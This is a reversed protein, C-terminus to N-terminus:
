RSGRGARMVEDVVLLQSALMTALHVFQRKVRYADWVGATVPLMPDGTEVDLGVPDASAEVEEQLKILTDLVDFGSNQALTKPIVLLADAVAQVGLKARGKVSKKYEMLDAAAALEFAGAGPVLAEDEVANVVAKLGDRLADKLQAITHANPGKLLVTVSQPHKVDEVFTYKDEGLVEEYVKGAWGLCEPRLAAESNVAEGGCALQLREMNRRKARRIGVIGEKALMDLSLPDIGKQNIVVFGYGNEPTCVQRKLEIVAKVKDDTFKREAEVLKEREEPTSYVFSSSVESKEYELSINCTLIYANEVYKPMDPHRAGHDLVLGRVLRSDTDTRHVMHMKEVMHLDIPEGERRVALVANVAIDTLQDAMDSRLKTRLATRAVSTLLDRDEHLDPHEVKFKDLFEMARAKGLEFGDALIRPHVGDMLYRQAYKLLEGTFLVISTTGDGQFCM